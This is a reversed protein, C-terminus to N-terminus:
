RERWLAIRGGARDFVCGCATEMRGDRATALIRFVGSRVALRPQLARLARLQGTSLPQGAGAAELAMMASAPDSSEFFAGITRMRALRGWLAAAEAESAGAAIASAVFPAKEVTNPNIAGGSHVSICPLAKALQERWPSDPPLLDALAEAAAPANTGAAMFLRASIAAAESRPIEACIALLETLAEAGCEPFGLLGTEDRVLTFVGPARGDANELAEANGAAWPEALFDVENTDAALSAIARELADQAKLRLAARAVSARAARPRAVALAAAGLALSALTAAAVIAFVLSAGSRRRRALRQGRPLNDCDSPVTM